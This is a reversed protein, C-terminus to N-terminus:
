RSAARGAAIGAGPRAGIGRAIRGLLARAPTQPVGQAPQPCLYRVSSLHNRFARADGSFILDKSLQIDLRGPLFYHGIGALMLGATYPMRLRRTLIAEVAAVFLLLGLDPLKSTM